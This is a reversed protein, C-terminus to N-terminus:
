SSALSPSKPSSTKKEADVGMEEFVALIAALIAPAEQEHDLALYLEEPTRYQDHIMPPLFLWLFATAAYAARHRDSLDATKPAGGLKSARIGYRRAVEQTWHIPVPQGAISVLNEM